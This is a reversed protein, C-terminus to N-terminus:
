HELWTAEVLFRTGGVVSMSYNLDKVCVYKEFIAKCLGKQANEIFYITQLWNLGAPISRNNCFINKHVSYKIYISNQLLKLM